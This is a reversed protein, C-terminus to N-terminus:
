FSNLDVPRLAGFWKITKEGIGPANVHILYLGGSVPINAYNKLDWDISTTEDDKTYQRIMTGNVTYITVTCKVPLNTIKIRNDLQNTEYGSYGYYPNPVVNILDLATKATVLDGKTTAIDFTNFKYMPYNKNVPAAAGDIGYNKAYPKM